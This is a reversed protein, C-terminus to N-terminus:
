LAFFPSFFYFFYTALESSSDIGNSKIPRQRAILSPAGPPFMDSIPHKSSYFPFLRTQIILFLIKKAQTSVSSCCHILLKHGWGCKREKVIRNKVLTFFSFLVLKSRVQSSLFDSCPQSPVLLFSFM